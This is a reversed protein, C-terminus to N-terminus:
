GAIEIRNRGTRKAQYLAEDARQILTSPHQAAEVLQVAVGISVTVYPAAPSAPHPLRMERIAELAASATRLAGDLDAHAILGAFEEGGYRSLHDGARRFVHQLTQAVSRLCDDGAVHGLSDNYAKFHDVDIMLLAIPAMVRSARSWEAELRRDFARRNDVGTLNDVLSQRRLHSELARRSSVDRIMAVVYSKNGIHIRKGNLEVPVLRGDRCRLDCEFRVQDVSANEDALSDLGERASEFLPHDRYDSGLLEGQRYGFHLATASNVEILRRDAGDVVLLADSSQDVLRFFLQLRDRQGQLQKELARTHVAGRIARRLGDATLGDRLLYDDAGQKLAEVSQRSDDIASLMIIASTSNRSRVRSLFDLSYLICDPPNREVFEAAARGGDAEAFEFMDGGDKIMARCRAREEASSDVLLLTPM